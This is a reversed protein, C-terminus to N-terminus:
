EGEVFQITNVDDLKAWFRLSKKLLRGNITVPAQKAKLWFTISDFAQQGKRIYIRDITLLTGAPLTLPHCCHQIEHTTKPVDGNPLRWKTKQVVKAREVDNLRWFDEVLRYPRAVGSAEIIAGNRYEEFLQFTWDQALTLATGLHPIHLTTM